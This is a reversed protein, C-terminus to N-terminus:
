ATRLRMGKPQPKSPEPGARLRPKCLTQPRLHHLFLRERKMRMVKHGGEGTFSAVQLGLAKLALVAKPKYCFGSLQFMLM